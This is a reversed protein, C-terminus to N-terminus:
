GFSKVDNHLFTGKSKCDSITKSVHIPVIFMHRGHFSDLISRAGSGISCCGCRAHSRVFDFYGTFPKHGTCSSVPSTVLLHKMISKM